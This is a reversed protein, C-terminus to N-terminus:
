ENVWGTRPQPHQFIESRWLLWLMVSAVCLAALAIGTWIGVVAPTIWRSLGWALPLGVGWYGGVVILMPVRTKHTGRLAGAAIAQLADCGIYLAGLLFLENALRDIAAYRADTREVFLRVVADPCAVLLTACLAAYAAGTALMFGATHAADRRQDGGWHQAVRVTATQALALPVMFAANVINLALQHASLSATGFRAVMTSFLLFLWIESAYGVAIPWGVRVIGRIRGLVASRADPLRAVVILPCLRVRIAYSALGVLMAAWTLSWAIGAGYVGWIPAGLMGYALMSSLVGNCLTAGVAIAMVAGTRRVAVLFYRLSAVCLAFPAGWACASCYDLAAKVVAPPMGFLALVPSVNSLALAVPVSCTLAVLIAAILIQARESARAAQAAFPQLGAIVGQAVLLLAAAVAAGLGGGALATSGLHGLVATSIATMAMQCIQVLALPGCLTVLARWEGSVGSARGRM